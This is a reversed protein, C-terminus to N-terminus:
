ELVSIRETYRKFHGPIPSFFHLYEFFLIGYHEYNSKLLKKWGEEGLEPLCRRINEYAVRSKFAGLRLILRGLKPGLWLEVRRPLISVGLGALFLVLWLPASFWIPM